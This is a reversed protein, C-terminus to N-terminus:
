VFQSAQARQFFSLFRKRLVQFYFLISILIRTNINIHTTYKCQFVLLAQPCTIQRIFFCKIPDMKQDVICYFCINFINNNIIIHYSISKYLMFTYIIKHYM